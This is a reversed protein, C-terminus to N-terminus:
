GGSAPETGAAGLERRATGPWQVCRNKGTRKAEYMALDAHHVLTAPDRGHIPFEAIGVSATVRHTTGKADVVPQALALRLKEAVGLADSAEHTAAIVVVFEDGGIRGVADVARVNDRLRRAIEILVQDGADHGYRDNISKFGDLDVFLLAGCRTERAARALEVELRDWFLRRNALGTLPDHLALDRIKESAAKEERIDQFAVVAGVIAGDRRVARVAFRVPFAEGSRQFFVEEGTRREGDNLTRRVPCEHAPYPSGDPYHHHFIAHQDHGVVEDARYGLVALAADNIFTCHGDPDVGYVGESLSDLLEERQALRRTEALVAVLRRNQRRMHIIAIAALIMLVLATALVQLAYKQVVEAAGFMALRDPHARLRLLLAEISAYDGPPAFGYINAAVAAPHKPDLHLLALTVDKALREPV